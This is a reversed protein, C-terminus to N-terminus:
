YGRALTRQQRWQGWGEMVAITAIYLVTAVGFAEFTQLSQTEVQRSAYSLEAV